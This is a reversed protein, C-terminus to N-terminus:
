QLTEMLKKELLDFDYEHQPFDNFRNKSVRGNDEKIWKKIDFLNCKNYKLTRAIYYRTMDKGYATLLQRYDDATLEGIVYASEGKIENLKNEKLKSEKTDSNGYNKGNKVYNSRKKGYNESFLTCYICSETEDEKLFWIEPKVETQRRLRKSVEQYQEQIFRSTYVTDQATLIGPVEVLLSRSVLFAIVQYIFKESKGLYRKMQDMLDQDLVLYYGEARFAESLLYIYTLVGDSGYNTHLAEIKPNKLYDTFFPFYKLGTVQTLAM